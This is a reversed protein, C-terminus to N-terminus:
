SLTRPDAVPWLVEVRAGGSAADGVAVTGGHATVLGHVVYM